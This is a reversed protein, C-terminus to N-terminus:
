RKRAAGSSCATPCFAPVKARARSPGSSTCCFPTTVKSAPPVGWTFRQYPNTEPTLGVSWTKVSFPPNAVVYDCARLQEGDNFKPSALTNGSVVNATPFDRLIMNMRAIGATTVDMEQGELTIHKGAQAALKLLLSGSGCTPAYATTSAKTNAPSIGIVQAMIRGVEAPTYFQGKSKDSETAFRKM